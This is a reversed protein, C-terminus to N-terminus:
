NTTFISYKTQFSLLLDGMFHIAGMVKTLGVTIVSDKTINEM